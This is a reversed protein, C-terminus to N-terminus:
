SLREVVAATASTWYTTASINHISQIDMLGHKHPASPIRARCATFNQSQWQQNSKVHSRCSACAASPGPIFVDALDATAGRSTDPPPTATRPGEAAAAFARLLSPAARGVAAAPRLLALAQLTLM